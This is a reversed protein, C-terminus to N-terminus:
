FDFTDPIETNLSKLYYREMGIFTNEDIFKGKLGALGTNDLGLKSFSVKNYDETTLLQNMNLPSDGRSTNKFHHYISM